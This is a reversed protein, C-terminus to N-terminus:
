YPLLDIVERLRDALTRGPVRHHKIINLIQQDHQQQLEESECRSRPPGDFTGFAWRHYLQGNERYRWSDVIVINVNGRSRARALRANAVHVNHLTNNEAFSLTIAFDNFHAHRMTEQSVLRPLSLSRSEREPHYFPHPREVM